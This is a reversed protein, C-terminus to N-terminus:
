YLQPILTFQLTFCNERNTEAQNLKGNRSKKKLHIEQKFGKFAKMHAKYSTRKKSTFLFSVLSYLSPNLGKLHIM